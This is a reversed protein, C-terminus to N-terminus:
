KQRFTIIIGKKVDVAHLCDGQLKVMDMEPKREVLDGASFKSGLHSTDVFLDLETYGSEHPSVEFWHGPLQLILSDSGFPSQRFNEYINSKEDKGRDLIVHDIHWISTSRQITWPGSKTPHSCRKDTHWCPHVDLGDLCTTWGARHPSKSLGKWHMHCYGKRAERFHTGERRRLLHPLPQHCKEGGGGFSTAAGASACFM